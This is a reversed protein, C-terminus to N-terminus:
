WFWPRVRHATMKWDVCSRIADTRKFNKRNRLVTQDLELILFLAGAVSIAAVFLTVVATTNHPAFLGFSVFLATLWFVVVVLFPLSVSNGSQASLLLRAQGYSILTSEAQAQLMRQSDTHPVLERIEDFVVEGGGPRLIAGEDTSWIQDIAQAITMKLTRRAHDTAPGFHALARDLLIADAGMQTLESSRTDYSAKASAVLLGLLLAAMTGVLGISLQLLSKNEAGLHHEPLLGRLWMGLLGGSFICIFIITSTEIPM